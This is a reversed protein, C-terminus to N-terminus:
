KNLGMIKKIVQRAEQDAKAQAVWSTGEQYEAILQREYMLTQLINKVRCIDLEVDEIKRL